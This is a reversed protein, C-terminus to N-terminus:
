FALGFTIPIFQAKSYGFTGKEYSASGMRAEVFGQIASLRFRYGAGADIVMKTESANSTAGSLNSELNMLGVGGIAYLGAALPIEINGLGSLLKTNDNGSYGSTAGLPAYVNKLKFTTLSVEPRLAIPFGPFNVILAGDYHFGTNHFTKLDGSPVTLGGSVVLQVIRPAARGSAGQAVGRSVPLTLTCAVAAVTGLLRRILM